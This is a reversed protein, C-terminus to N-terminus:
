YLTHRIMDVHIGYPGSDVRNFFYCFNLIMFARRSRCGCIGVVSAFGRINCFDVLLRAKM